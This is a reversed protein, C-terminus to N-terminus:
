ASDSEVIQGGAALAGRLNKANGSSTFRKLLIRFFGFDTVPVSAVREITM